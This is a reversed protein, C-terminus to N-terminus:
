AHSTCIGEESLLLRPGTPAHRVCNKLNGVYHGLRLRGTPRDGTLPRKQNM